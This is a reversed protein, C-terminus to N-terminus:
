KKEIFKIFFFPDSNFISKSNLKIIVNIKHDINMGVYAFMITLHFLSMRISKEFM